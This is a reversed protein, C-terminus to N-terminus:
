SRLAEALDYCLNGLAQLEDATLAPGFGTAENGGRDVLSLGVHPEGNVTEAWRVKARGYVGPNITRTVPATPKVLTTMCFRAEVPESAVEEVLDWQARYGEYVNWCTGDANWVFGDGVKQIFRGDDFALMPGIDEGIAARYTKGAKVAVTRLPEFDSPALIVRSGDVAEGFWEGPSAQSPGKLVIRCGKAWAGGWGEHTIRVTQGVSYSSQDFLWDDEAWWVEGIGGCDWNVCFKGDSRVERIAAWGWGSPDLVRVGVQARLPEWEGAHMVPGLKGDRDTSIKGDEDALYAKGASFLEGDWSVCRHWTNPKFTYSM